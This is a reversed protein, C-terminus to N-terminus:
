FIFIIIWGKKSWFFSFSETLGSTILMHDFGKTQSFTFCFQLIELLIVLLSSIEYKSLEVL